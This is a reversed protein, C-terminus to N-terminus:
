GGPGDGGFRWDGALADLAEHHSVGHPATLPTVSVDGALIAHRDSEEPYGEPDHAPLHPPNELGLDAEIDASAWFTNNFRITDGDREIRTDYDTLPRTVRMEVGSQPAIAPANVNLFGVREGARDSTAERGAAAGFGEFGDFVATELAGEVLHRTAAAPLAYDEPDDPDPLFGTPDYASVAIAPTGLFAAEVAAAVTGSHGLIYADFNPGVNCGSVVLDPRDDLGRLGFATCDAPTGDVAYTDDDRRTVEVTDSRARGVGSHDTTPAVVTVRVQEALADRLAVLGPSDIGDDNTLLVHPRADAPPDAHDDTDGAAPPDTEDTDPPADM